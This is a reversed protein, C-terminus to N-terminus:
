WLVLVVIGMSAWAVGSWRRAKSRMLAVMGSVMVVCGCVCVVWVLSVGSWVAIVTLDPHATSLAGEGADIV